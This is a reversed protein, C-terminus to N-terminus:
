STLVDTSCNGSVIGYVTIPGPSTATPNVVPAGGVVLPPLTIRVTSGMRAVQKTGGGLRVTKGKLHSFDGGDLTLGSVASINVHKKSELEIGEDAKVSFRKRTRVFVSECRLFTNGSRDFFFRLHTSNKVAPSAVSGTEANFGDPSIVVEAVIYGDDKAMNLRDIDPQNGELGTPEGVPDSVKGVKVRLDASKNDAYVRFTQWHETPHHDIGPGEQLGWAVSGGANHHIYNQSIDMIYHKLPIYIRQALETAGLQLVGGRHLVLFNDDRTRFWIDGPVGRPRGGAFSSGSSTAGSSPQSTTGKPADPTALDVIEPPMIFSQVYPPSSDSPICVVCKAGIEPLMSQGEGKSYHLYTSGVQIDFYRKKDFDAAVDVTWNVMNVGVIKGQVALAPVNGETFTFSTRFRSVGQSM